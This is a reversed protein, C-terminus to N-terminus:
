LQGYYPYEELIIGAEQFLNRSVKFDAEWRDNQNTYSIVKTIGTQIIMAACKPCPMFPFTYLTCNELSKNAFLIANMEGHVIIKYKEERDSLRNDDQIGTPFGNFGMSVIRNKQDVIIAGVKTSPDKSWSSIFEALSLFRKDWNQLNM